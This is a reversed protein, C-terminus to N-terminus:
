FQELFRVKGSHFLRIDNVGYKLMALRTLGFGFAFGSYVEPDIGGARLVNPHILGGPFVEIWTSKKCVSCGNKCFPCRADIEFGPEVFPFFGPRIRIDLSKKFLAELFTKATAFLNAVTVNKDILFGECQMFMYDHTADTAEHRYCRGPIVAAIPLQKSEMTRVQVPSTHTRLLYNPLNVWFTDYMDRAPHEQPINLATFNYHESELEPGDLVEYGMSIFINEIEEIVQTYPHLSGKNADTKYVSFDFNQKKLDAKEIESKLILTEKEKIKSEVDSRFSNLLPGIIKKDEVSLDKLQSLIETIFGKKGLFSIRIKELDKSAVAAALEQGFQVQLLEIKSKLNGM